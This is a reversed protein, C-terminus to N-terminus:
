RVCEARGLATPAVVNAVLLKVRIVRGSLGEECGLCIANPKIMLMAVPRKKWCARFILRKLKEGLMM